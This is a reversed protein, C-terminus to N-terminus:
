KWIQPAYYFLVSFIADSFTIMFICTVVASTTALGVMEAGGRM